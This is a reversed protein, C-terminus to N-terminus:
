EIWGNMWGDMQKWGDIRSIGGMCVDAMTEGMWGGAGDMNDIKGDTWGDCRMAVCRIVDYSVADDVMGKM